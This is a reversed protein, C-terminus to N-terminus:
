PTIGLEPDIFHVTNCVFSESNKATAGDNTRFLHPVNELTKKFQEKEREFTKEVDKTVTGRSPLEFNPDLIECFEKFEPDEVM